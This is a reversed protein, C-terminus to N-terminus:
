FRSLVTSQVFWEMFEPSLFDVRRASSSTTAAAPAPFIGSQNPRDNESSSRNIERAEAKSGREFLVSRRVSSM